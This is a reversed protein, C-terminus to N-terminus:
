LPLDLEIGSARPGSPLPARPERVGSGPPPDGWDSPHTWACDRRRLRLKLWTGDPTRSLYLGHGRIVFQATFHGKSFRRWELPRTVVLLAVAVAFALVLWLPV